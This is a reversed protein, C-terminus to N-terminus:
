QKKIHKEVFEMFGDYTRVGGYEDILANNGDYLRITPYGNVKERVKEPEKEAEIMEFTVRKGHVQKSSDLKAFEPKAAVCHPCWDAYYMRLYYDPAANEFGEFAKLSLGKVSRAWIFILLAGALVLIYPLFPHKFNFRM